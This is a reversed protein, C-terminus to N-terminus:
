LTINNKIVIEKFKEKARNLLTAITGMPKKLINSIETYDKDELYKLILVERYKIDLKSLLKQIKEKLLTKDTEEKINLDTALKEYLIENEELYTDRQSKKNKRYHSVVHNHAIRYIWSSFKLSQDFDSLNQYTKIFVEQLLDEADENPLNTIRKIYTLLPREYKKIIHTFDDANKLSIKV